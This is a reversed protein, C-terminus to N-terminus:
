GLREGGVYMAVVKVADKLIKGVFKRRYHTGLTNGM